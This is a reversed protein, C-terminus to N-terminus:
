RLWSVLTLLLLFFVSGVCHHLFGFFFRVLNEVVINIALPASTETWVVNGGDMEHLSLLEHAYQEMEQSCKEWQNPSDPSSSSASTEPFMRGLWNRLSHNRDKLMMGRENMVCGELEERLFIRQGDCIM